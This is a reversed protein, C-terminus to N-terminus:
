CRALYALQGQQVFAYNLSSCKHYYLRLLGEVITVPTDKNNVEDNQKSEESSTEESIAEPDEESNEVSDETEDANGDDSESGSEENESKSPAAPNPDSEQENSRVAM